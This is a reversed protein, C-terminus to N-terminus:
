GRAPQVGQKQESGTAALADCLIAGAATCPMPKGGKTIHGLQRATQVLKEYAPVPIRVTITVAPQM